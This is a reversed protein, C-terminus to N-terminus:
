GELELWVVCVTNEILVFPEPECLKNVTSQRERETSGYQWCNLAIRARHPLAAM